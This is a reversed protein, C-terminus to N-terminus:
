RRVEVLIVPCGDPGELVRRRSSPDEIQYKAAFTEVASQAIADAVEETKFWSPQSLGVRPVEDPLGDPFAGAVVKGVYEADPVSMGRRLVVVVAPHDPAEPTAPEAAPAESKGGFIKSFLGM